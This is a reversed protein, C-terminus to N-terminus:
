PRDTPAPTTNAPTTKDKDNGKGKDADQGAKTKRQSKNAKRARKADAANQDLVQAQALLMAYYADYTFDSTTKGNTQMVVKSMSAAQYLQDHGRIASTLWKRKDEDSPPAHCADELDLLRHEFNVLFAELPRNWSANLHLKQIDARIAEERLEASVGGEYAQVLDKYLAQANHTAEYERLFKLSKSTKLCRTFVSYAFNQQQQFLETEAPTSPKYEGDLIQEIGHIPAM